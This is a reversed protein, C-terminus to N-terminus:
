YQLWTCHRLSACCPRLIEKGRKGERKCNFSLTKKTGRRCMQTERAEGAKPAGAEPTSLNRVHNRNLCAKARKKPHLSDTCYKAPVQVTGKSNWGGVTSCSYGSFALSVPGRCPHGQAKPATCDVESGLLPRPTQGDAFMKLRCKSLRSM